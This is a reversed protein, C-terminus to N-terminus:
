QGFFNPGSVLHQRYYSLRTFEKGCNEVDCKFIKDPNKEHSNMHLVLGNKYAFEKYCVPCQFKKEPEKREVPPAVVPQLGFDFPMAVLRGVPEPIPQPMIKRPSISDSKAVLREQVMDKVLKKPSINIAFPNPKAKRIPVISIESPFTFSARAKAKARIEEKVKPSIIHDNLKPKIPLIMSLRKKFACKVSKKHKYLSSLHAFTRQCIDCKYNKQTSHTDLHQKWLHLKVFSKTCGEFECKYLGDTSKRVQSLLNEKIDNNIDYRITTPDRIRRMKPKADDDIVQVDSSGNPQIM